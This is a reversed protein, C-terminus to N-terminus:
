EDEYFKIKIKYETNERINKEGFRNVKRMILGLGIGVILIVTLIIIQEIM